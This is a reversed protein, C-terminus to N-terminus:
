GHPLLRGGPREPAPRARARLAERAGDAGRVRQRGGRELSAALRDAFVDPRLLRAADHLLAGLLLGLAGLVVCVVGLPTRHLSMRGPVITSRDAVRLM